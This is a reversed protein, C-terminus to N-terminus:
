IWPLALWVWLCAYSCCWTTGGHARLRRRSSSSALSGVNLLGQALKPAAVVRRWYALGDGSASAVM